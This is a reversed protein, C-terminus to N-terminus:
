GRHDTGMRNFYQEENPKVAGRGHGLDGFQLSVPGKAGHNTDNYIM